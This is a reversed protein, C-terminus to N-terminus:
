RSRRMAAGTVTQQAEVMLRRVKDAEPYAPHKKLLTDWAEIAGFPDRKGELRVIGMNFLTQPHAPDIALSKSYQALAEEPRGSYWLATGLDTSLGANRSDIAVAQQYYPVADAFREADYLKHALTTLAGLNKPDKSLIDRYPQLESDNLGAVAAPESPMAAPPGPANSTAATSAAVRSAGLLYGGIAGLLLSAACSAVLLGPNFGINTRM